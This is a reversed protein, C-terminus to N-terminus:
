KEGEEKKLADHAEKLGKMIAIQQPCKTECIGCEVCKDAKSEEKQMSYYLQARPKDDFMKGMNYIWFVKPIAVGHPCPICYGCGTCPIPRIKLFAAEVDKFIKLDSDTFYGVKAESAYKINQEVQELTSMGSLLIGVEPQNWLWHLAGEVPSMKRPFKDWIQKIVPPQEKALQGGRLPEMIIIGLGKDHAYKM